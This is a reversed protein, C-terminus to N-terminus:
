LYFDMTFCVHVLVHFTDQDDMDTDEEGGLNQRRSPLPPPPPNRTTTSSSSPMAKPAPTSPQPNASSPQPMAKATAGVSESKPRLEVKSKEWSKSKESRPQEYEVGGPAFVRPARTQSDDGRAAESPRSGSGLDGQDNTEDRPDADAYKLHPVGKSYDENTVIQRSFEAVGGRMNNLYKLSLGHLDTFGYQNLLLVTEQDVITNTPDGVLAAMDISLHKNDSQMPTLVSFTECGSVLKLIKCMTTYSPDNQLLIKETVKEMIEASGGLYDRRTKQLLTQRRNHEIMENLDKQDMGIRYFAWRIKHILQHVAHARVAVHEGGHNLQKEYTKISRLRTIYELNTLSEPEGTMPDISKVPYNKGTLDPRFGKAWNALKGERDTAVNYKWWTKMDKNIRNMLQVLFYM